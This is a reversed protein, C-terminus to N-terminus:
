LSGAVINADAGSKLTSKEQHLSGAVTVDIDKGSEIYGNATNELTGAHIAVNEKGGVGELIIKAVETFNM